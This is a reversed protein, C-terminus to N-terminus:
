GRIRAPLRRAGVAVGEGPRQTHRRRAQRVDALRPARGGGRRLDLRRVGARNISSISRISLKSPDIQDISQDLQDIQNIIINISKISLYSVSVLKGMGPQAHM